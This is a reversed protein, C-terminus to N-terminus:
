GLRTFMTNRATVVIMCKRGVIMCKKGVIM